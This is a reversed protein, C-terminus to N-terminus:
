NKFSKRSIKGILSTRGRHRLLETPPSMGFILHGIERRADRRFIRKKSNKFNSTIRSGRITM